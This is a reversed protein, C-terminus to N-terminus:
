VPRTALITEYDVAGPLVANGSDDGVQILVELPGGARPLQRDDRHPLGLGVWALYHAFGDVRADVDACRLRKDRWVLFTHDPITRAVTGFVDPLNFSM